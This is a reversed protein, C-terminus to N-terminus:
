RVAHLVVQPGTPKQAWPFAPRVRAARGQPGCGVLPFAPGNGLKRQEGRPASARLTAKPGVDLWLFRRATGLNGKSGEPPPRACRPRPAWMWGFSVGPREWTEKAGRPPRVRAAHGQPGCGVLPFAPGNGLKRQEGRPASARLAAKPSVDLAHRAPTRLRHVQRRRSSSGHAAVDVDHRGPM